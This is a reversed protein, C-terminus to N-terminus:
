KINKRSFRMKMKINEILTAIANVFPTAALNTLTGTQYREWPFLVLLDMLELLFLRHFLLFQWGGGDSGGFICGGMLIDECIDQLRNSVRCTINSHPYQLLPFIHMLVFWCRGRGGFEWRMRGGGMKRVNDGRRAWFRITLSYAIGNAPCHPHSPMRHQLIPLNCWILGESSLQAFFQASPWSIVEMVMSFWNCCVTPSSPPIIGGGPSSSIIQARGIFKMITRKFVPGDSHVFAKILSVRCFGVLILLWFYPLCHFLDLLYFITFFVWFGDICNPKASRCISCERRLLCWLIDKFKNLFVFLLVNLKMTIMWKIKNQQIWYGLSGFLDYFGRLNMVVNQINTILKLNRLKSRFSWIKSRINWNEYNM